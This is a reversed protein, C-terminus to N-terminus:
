IVRPRAYTGRPMGQVRTAHMLSMMRMAAHTHCTTTQFLEHCRRVAQLSESRYYVNSAWRKFAGVWRGSLSLHGTRPRPIPVPM